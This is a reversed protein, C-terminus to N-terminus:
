TQREDLNIMQQIQEREEKSTPCDKAFHNYERCKYCRIGDRNTSVRLGSGPRSNSISRNNKEIILIGQFHDKELGVGVEKETIIRMGVIKRIDEEIRDKM